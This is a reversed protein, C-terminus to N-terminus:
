STLEEARTKSKRSNEVGPFTVIFESGKNVESMIEIKGNNMKLLQLSVSMGLGTGMEGATGETTHIKETDLLKEIESPDMGIGSDKVIVSVDHEREEVSITIGGQHTFKLSNHILNRLILSVHDKDAFVIFDKSPHFIVKLNKQDALSAYLMINEAILENLSIEAPYHTIKDMQTRAWNLVNDVTNLVTKLKKRVDDTFLKFEEKSFEETENLNLISHLLILPSRLDHSIISFLQSKTKNAEQLQEETRKLETIDAVYLTVFKVKFTDDFIPYYQGSVFSMSGDPLVSEELIAPSQGNMAKKVNQIHNELNKYPAVKSYHKGIIEKRPKQFGQHYQQNVIIYKGSNDIMAIFLPLNDILSYVMKEQSYSQFAVKLLSSKFIWIVYISVAILTGFNIMELVHNMSFVSELQEYKLYKLLFFVLLYSTLLFVRERKEFFVVIILFYGIFLNETGTFRGEGYSINAALFTLLGLGLILLYISLRSQRYYHLLFSPLLILGLVGAHIVLIDELGYVINIIVFSLDLSTIFIILYFLLPDKLGPDQSDSPFVGEIRMRNQLKRLNM